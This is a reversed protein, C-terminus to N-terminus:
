QVGQVGFVVRFVGMAACALIGGSCSGKGCRVMIVRVSWVASQAKASKAAGQAMALLMWTVPLVSILVPPLVEYEVEILDLADLPLQFIWTGTTSLFHQESADQGVSARFANYAEGDSFLYLRSVGEDDQSYMLRSSAGTSVMEAAAAESVPLMWKDFSVLRRMLETGTIQKNQWEAIALQVPSDPM